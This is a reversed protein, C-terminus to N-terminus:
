PQRQHTYPNGQMCIRYRCAHSRSVGPRGSRQKSLSYHRQDTNPRCSCSPCRMPHSPNRECQTHDICSLYTPHRQYQTGTLFISTVISTADETSYTLRLTPSSNRSRIVSFAVVPYIQRWAAPRGCPTTDSPSSIRGPIPPIPAAPLCSNLYEHVTGIEVRRRKSNARGHCIPRGM